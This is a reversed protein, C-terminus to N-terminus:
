EHPRVAAEDGLVSLSPFSWQTRQRWGLLLIAATHCRGHVHVHCLSIYSIYHTCHQCRIVLATRISVSRLYSSRCGTSLASPVRSPVLQSRVALSPDFGLKESMTISDLEYRAKRLTSQQTNCSYPGFIQAPASLSGAGLSITRVAAPRPIGPPSEAMKTSSETLFPNQKDSKSADSGEVRLGSRWAAVRPTPAKLNRGLALGFPPAHLHM